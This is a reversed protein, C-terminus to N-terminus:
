SVIIQTGGRSTTDPRRLITVTSLLREYISLFGFILCLNFLFDLPSRFIVDDLFEIGSSAPLSMHNFM